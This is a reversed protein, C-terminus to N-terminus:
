KFRLALLEKEAVVCYKGILFIFRLLPGWPWGLAGWLSGWSWGLAGFVGGLSWGLAASVVWSGRDDKGNM